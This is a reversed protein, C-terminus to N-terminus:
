LSFSLSSLSARFDATCAATAALADGASFGVSGFGEGGVPGTCGSIGLDEGGVRGMSRVAPFCGDGSMLDIASGEAEAM